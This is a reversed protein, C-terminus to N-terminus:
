GRPQAQLKRDVLQQLEGINKLKIVELTRFRIGYEKEVAALIQVHRLSDWGPIEPAITEDQLPFDDLQLEALITKKLRESIVIEEKCPKAKLGSAPPRLRFPQRSTSSLM